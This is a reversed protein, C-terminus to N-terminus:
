LKANLMIECTGRYHKNGSHREPARGRGLIVDFPGPEQILQTTLPENEYSESLSVVSGSPASQEKEPMRMGAEITSQLLTTPYPIYYASNIFVHFKTNVQTTKAVKCLRTRM